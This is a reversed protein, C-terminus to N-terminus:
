KTTKGGMKGYASDVPEWLEIKNGDNDMIHIFKGYDVKQITDVITVGNDKLQKLMGDLNQVRYNIMFEKESPKFYGTTEKFAAWQLYNAEEPKNANRFEFTSGYAGMALGLNKGYWERTAKPDKCKFFIGGIGTVKPEKADDVPTKADNKTGASSGVLFLSLLLIVASNNLLTKMTYKIKQSLFTNFIYIVRNIVSKRCNMVSKGTRIVYGIYLAGALYLKAKTILM